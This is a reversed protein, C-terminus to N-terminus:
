VIANYVNGQIQYIMKIAPRVTIFVLLNNSDHKSLLDALEKSTQHTTSLLNKGQSWDDFSRPKGRTKFCYNFFNVQTVLGKLLMETKTKCDVISFNFPVSHLEHFTM